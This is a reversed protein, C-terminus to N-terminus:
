PACTGKHSEELRGGCCMVFLPVFCNGLLLLRDISPRKQNQLVCADLIIYCKIIRPLARNSRIGLRITQWPWARSTLHTHLMSRPRSAKNRHCEFARFALGSLLSSQGTVM